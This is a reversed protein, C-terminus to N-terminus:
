AATQPHGQGIITMASLREYNLLYSLRTIAGSTKNVLTAPQDFVAFNIDGDVISERAGSVVLFHTDDEYGYTAVMYTGLTWSDREDAAVLDRAEEFTIM